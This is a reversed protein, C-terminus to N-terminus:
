RWYVWWGRGARGGKPFYRRYLSDYKSSDRLALHSLGFQMQYRELTDATIRRGFNYATWGERNLAYLATNPSPDQPCWFRAEPPIGLADTEAASLFADPPLTLDSPPFFALQLRKSMLRHEHWLGLVLCLALGTLVSKRGYRAQWHPLGAVLLGAPVVLLCISYYDHERFMRFWLLFYAISGALTPWAIAKYLWNTSKWNKVLLMACGAAALYLGASAFAPLVFLSMQRLTELIFAGDYRWIPRTAALFYRSHHGANYRMMWAQFGATLFLVGAMIWVPWRGSWVSGPGWARRRAGFGWAASLALPLIAMSIKLLIAMGGALGALLVWRRRGSVGAQQLCAAMILIFCFAPADPLTNPGYYALVPATLLLGTGLAAVPWYHRLLLLWGFCWGGAFLLVLGIWRLPFAVVDGWFRETLGALWYLGPFEGCAHADGTNQLNGIRVEGLRLDTAYHRAISAGDAQRWQHISAPPLALWRDFRNVLAVLAFVLLYAASYGYLHPHHKRDSAERMTTKLTFTLRRGRLRQSATCRDTM